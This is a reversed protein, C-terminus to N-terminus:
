KQKRSKFMLIESGANEIQIRATDQKKRFGSLVAEAFRLSRTSDYIMKMTDFYWEAEKIKGIRLMELIERKLEGEVDMLGMLYAEKEVGVTEMSPVRQKTKLEYFISAEAYEQYAQMTNYKFQGDITKLREVMKKNAELKEAARKIDGNHMMTILQGANRIVERSLQMVEDFDSQKKALYDSIEEVDAELGKM